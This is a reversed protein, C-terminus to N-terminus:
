CTAFTLRDNERFERAFLFSKHLGFVAVDLDQEMLAKFALELETADFGHSALWVLSDRLDGQMQRGDLDVVYRNDSLRYVM